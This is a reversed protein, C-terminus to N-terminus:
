NEKLEKWDKFIQFVELLIEDKILNNKLLESTKLFADNDELSTFSINKFLDQQDDLTPIVFPNFLEYQISTYGTNSIVKVLHKSISDLRSLTERNISLQNLSDIPEDRYAVARFNRVKPCSLPFKLKSESVLSKGFITPLEIDPQVGLGQYSNGDFGHIKLSTVVVSGNQTSQNDTKVPIVTQGTAKGFTASGVILTNPYKQMTSALIESASASFANVLFIVKGNLVKGRKTDKELRPEYDSEKTVISFLPGYDTFYKLIESAEYVSGGGNNRLDIIVDNVRSKKIKLLILALDQSSSRSDVNYKSYFRPFNVYGIKLNEQQLLYSFTHNASQSNLSKSLEYKRYNNDLKSKIEITLRSEIKGYFLENLKNLTLCAIPQLAGGKLVRTIEDGVRIEPYNSADSYSSIDAIYFKNDQRTFTLGTSYVESSLHSIFREESQSSLYVSHPDFSLCFANLVANLLYKKLSEEPLLSEIICKESDVISHAQENLFDNIRDQSLHELSSDNKYSNLVQYKVRKAWLSNLSEQNNEFWISDVDYSIFISDNDYFNLTEWHNLHDLTYQLKKSFLENLRSIKEGIDPKNVDLDSWMHSIDAAESAILYKSQPDIHELLLNPLRNPIHKILHDYDIHNERLIKNVADFVKSEHIKPQAVLNQSEFLIGLFFILSYFYYKM